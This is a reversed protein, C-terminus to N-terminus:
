PIKRLATNTLLIETALLSLAIALLPPLKFGDLTVAHTALETYQMFRKEETKTKELENIEKYINKLSASDKARFYQGGTVSAISKLTEEDIFVRAQRRFVSGFVDRVPMNAYGDTGAGITYVKIDFAQAIEAAKEPEIDGRNNEGDTLLIAIRSKIRNAESVDRRRDLDRLKEVALALADGIATGDEERGEEPQVINTQRLTKALFEHDLTLPCKSDAFGAFSVLGVLDDPRGKLDDSGLVFEEVVSKVVALRNIPQGQNNTFDEALMSSSRDVILQIAIGESYIRTEENGKQPRAICLILIAVALTRLLPLLIRASVRLSQNNRKLWDISSFRIAAHPHRRLWQWWILPLLVLLTLMWPAHLTM